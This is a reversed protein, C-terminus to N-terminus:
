NESPKTLKDIVLVDVAKPIRKTRSWLKISIGDPM